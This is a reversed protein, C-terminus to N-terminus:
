ELIYFITHYFSLDYFGLSQPCHVFTNYFILKMFDIFNVNSSVLMLLLVYYYPIIKLFLGLNTEFLKSFKVKFIWLFIYNCNKLMQFRKDNMLISIEISKHFSFCSKIFIVDVNEEFLLSELLACQICISFGKCLKGQLYSKIM